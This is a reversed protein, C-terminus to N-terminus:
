RQTSQISEIQHQHHFHRQSVSQVFDIGLLKTLKAGLVIKLPHIDIM